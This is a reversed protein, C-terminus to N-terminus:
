KIILLGYKYMLDLLNPLLVELRETLALREANSWGNYADASINVAGIDAMEEKFAPPLHRSSELPQIISVISTTKNARLRNELYLSGDGFERSASFSQRYRERREDNSEFSDVITPTALYKIFREVALNCLFQERSPAAVYHPRSFDVGQRVETALGEEIMRRYYRESMSNQGEDQGFKEM